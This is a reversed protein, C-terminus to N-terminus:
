ILQRVFSIISDKLFLCVKGTTTSPNTIGASTSVTSIVSFHSDIKSLTNTFAAGDAAKKRKEAGSLAHSVVREIRRKSM